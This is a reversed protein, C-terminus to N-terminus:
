AQALVEKALDLPHSADSHLIRSGAKSGGTIQV